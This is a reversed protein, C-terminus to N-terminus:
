AFTCAMSARLATIYGAGSVNGSLVGYRMKFITLNSQRMRYLGDRIWKKDNALEQNKKEAGEAQTEHGCDNQSSQIIM